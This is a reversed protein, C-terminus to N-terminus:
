AILARRFSAKSRYFPVTDQSPYLFANTQWTLRPRQHGNTSYWRWSVGQNAKAM